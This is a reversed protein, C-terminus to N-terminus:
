KNFTLLHEVTHRKNYGYFTTTIIGRKVGDQYVGWCYEVQKFPDKFEQSDIFKNHWQRNLQCIGFDSYGNSGVIMSKRQPDVTGNEAVLTKVFDKDNSLDYAYSM